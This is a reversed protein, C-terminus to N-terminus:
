AEAAADTGHGDVGHVPRADASPLPYVALFVTAERSERPWRFARCCTNAPLVLLDGPDLVVPDRGVEAFEVRLQGQIVAILDVSAQSFWQCDIAEDQKSVWVAEIGAGRFVRGVDGTQAHWVDLAEGQLLHFIRPETPQDSATAKM